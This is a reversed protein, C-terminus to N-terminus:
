CIGIVFSLSLCGDLRKLAVIKYEYMYLGAIFRSMVAVQFQLHLGDLIKVLSQNGWYIILYARPLFGNTDGNQRIMECGYLHTDVYSLSHREKDPITTNLGVIYLLIILHRTDIARITEKTV